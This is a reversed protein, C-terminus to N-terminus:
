AFTLMAAERSKKQDAIAQGDIIPWRQRSASVTGRSLPSQSYSVETQKVSIVMALKAMLISGKEAIFDM